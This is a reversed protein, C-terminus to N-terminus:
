IQYQYKQGNAPELYHGVSLDAYGNLMDAYPSMFPLKTSGASSQPFKVGFHFNGIRKKVRWNLETLKNQALECYMDYWFVKCTMEVSDYM